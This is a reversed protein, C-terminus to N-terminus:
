RITPLAPEPRDRIEGILRQAIARFERSQPHEPQAVVIPTGTDAAARIERVLPIEGLFPIHFEQAVRAGGGHGFLESRHGCGSCVHYSMNEIVGLVPANVQQFM